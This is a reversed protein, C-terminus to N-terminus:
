KKNKGLISLDTSDRWDPTKPWDTRRSAEEFGATEFWELVEDETHDTAYKPTYKDRIGVLYQNLSINEHLKKGALRKVVRVAGHALGMAYVMVAQPYKPLRSTVKRIPQIFFVNRILNWGKKQGYLWVYFTGGQKTLKSVAEFARKTNYTHHLVGHSYTIDTIGEKLPPSLVSGQVFHCLNSNNNAAAREIVHAMDLGIIEIQNDHSLKMSCIAPGCGADVMLKGTLEKASDIRLEECFTDIREDSTWLWIIGDDYNFEDWEDSFSGQVHGEDTNEELRKQTETSQVEFDKHAAKYIRPVGKVIPFKFDCTKCELEGSVIETQYEEINRDVQNLVEVEVDSLTVDEKEHVDIDLKSGCQFCSLYNLLAPKM